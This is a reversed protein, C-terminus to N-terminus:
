TWDRSGCGGCIIWWCMRMRVTRVRGAPVCSGTRRRWWRATRMWSRTPCGGAPVSSRRCGYSGWWWGVVWRADGGGSRSGGRHRCEPGLGCGEGPGASWEVRVDWVGWRRNTFDCVLVDWPPMHYLRHADAVKGLSHYTAFVNVPGDTQSVEAALTAADTVATLIGRLAPNRPLYRDGSLALYRGPRGEKHWEGATQELLDLTPVVVISTGAPAMRNVIHLAIFTKGSGPPADIRCRPAGLVFETVANDVAQQQYPRLATRLQPLQAM